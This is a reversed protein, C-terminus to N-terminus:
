MAVQSSPTKTKYFDECNKKIGFYITCNKM